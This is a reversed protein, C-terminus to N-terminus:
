FEKYLVVDFDVMIDFLGASDLTILMGSIANSTEYRRGPFILLDCYVCFKYLCYANLSAVSKRIYSAGMHVINFVKEESLNYGDMPVSSFSGNMYTNISLDQLIISFAMQFFLFHQFHRRTMLYISFCTLTCSAIGILLLFSGGANIQEYILQEHTTMDGDTRLFSYTKM